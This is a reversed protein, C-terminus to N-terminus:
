IWLWSTCAHREKKNKQLHGRVDANKQAIVPFGFLGRLLDHTDQFRAKNSLSVLSVLNGNRSAVIRWGLAFVMFVNRRGAVWTLWGM